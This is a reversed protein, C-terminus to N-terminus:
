RYPFLHCSDARRHFANEEDSLFAKTLPHKLAEFIQKDHVIHGSFAGILAVAQARVASILEQSEDWHELVDNTVCRRWIADIQQGNGDRLVTGDFSLDRVDAIVCEYGAQKFYESFIRSNMSWVWM